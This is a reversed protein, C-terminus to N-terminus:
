RIVMLKALWNAVRERLTSRKEAKEEKVAAEAKDPDTEYSEYPEDGEKDLQAWIKEYLSRSPSFVPMTHYSGCNPCKMPASIASAMWEADPARFQTGCKDCKFTIIGRIM